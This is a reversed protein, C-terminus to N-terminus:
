YLYINDFRGNLESHNLSKREEYCSKSDLLQLNFNNENKTKTTTTKQSVFSLFFCLALVAAVKVQM